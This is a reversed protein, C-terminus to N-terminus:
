LVQSAVLFTRQNKQDAQQNELSCNLLLGCIWTKPHLCCYAILMEVLQQIVRDSLKTEYLDIWIGMPRHKTNLFNEEAKMM